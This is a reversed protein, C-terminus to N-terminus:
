SLNLAKKLNKDLEKQIVPSLRGLRRLILTTSITLLKGMKFVSNKKLGTSAFDKNKSTLSFETEGLSDPVVSSIFAIIVDDGQPDASVLVAPRVKLSTLDTFPFPVLVIDGRKLPM